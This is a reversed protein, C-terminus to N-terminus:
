FFSFRICFVPTRFIQVNALHGPYGIWCDRVASTRIDNERVMKLHHRVRYHYSSRPTWTSEVQQKDPNSHFNQHAVMLLEDDLPLWAFGLLIIRATVILALLSWPPSIFIYWEIMSQDDCHNMPRFIVCSQLMTRMPPFLNSNGALAPVIVSWSWPKCQKIGYWINQLPKSPGSASAIIYQTVALRSSSVWALEHFHFKSM